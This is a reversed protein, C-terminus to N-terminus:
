RVPSMQGDHHDHHIAPQQSLEEMFSSGARKLANVSSRRAQSANAEKKEASM